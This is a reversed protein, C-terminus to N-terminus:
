LRSKGPKRSRARNEQELVAGAFQLKLQLRLSPERIQDVIQDARFWDSTALASLSTDLKLEGLSEPYVGLSTQSEGIKVEIGFAVPPRKPPDVKGPSSNAYRSAISLTDFAREIDTKSLMAAATLALEVKHPSPSAKDLAKLANSILEFGLVRDDKAAVTALALLAWARTEEPSILGAYKQAQMFDGQKVLWAIRTITLRVEYTSKVNEDTFGSLAETALDLKKEFDATSDKLLESILGVLRLDRKGPPDKLIDNLREHPDSLTEPQFAQLRTRTEAPVLTVLENMAQEVSFLQEAPGQLVVPRVNIAAMTYVTRGYFSDVRSAGAPETALKAQAQLSRILFMVFAPKVSGPLEKDLQMLSSAYGLDSPDLSVIPGIAQAVTIELRNLLTRNGSKILKEFIQSLVGSVSGSQLSQAVHSLAKEPDTDILAQAIQASQDAIARRDLFETFWPLKEKSATKASLAEAEFEKQLNATKEADLRSYIALIDNRLEAARYRRYWNAEDETAWRKLQDLGADLFRRAEDPETRELVKAAYLLLNVRQPIDAVKPTDTVSNLVATRALAYYDHAPPAAKNQAECHPLKWFFVGSILACAITVRSLIRTLQNSNM